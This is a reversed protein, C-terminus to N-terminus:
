PRYDVCGAEPLTCELWRQVLSSLDTLDIQCDQNMDVSDYGWVECDNEEIDVVLDDILFGSYGSAPNVQVQFEITTTHRRSEKASDDVATLTVSQSSQWNSTNFVIQSPAVQVQNPDLSDTITITIPHSFPDDTISISIADSAGGEQVVTTGDSESVLITYPPVESPVSAAFVQGRQNDYGATQIMNAANNWFLLPFQAEGTEVLGGMHGPIIAGSGLFSVSHNGDLNESGTSNTIAHSTTVSNISSVLEGTNADFSVYVENEVGFTVAGLTIALANDGFDTDNMSAPLGLQNANKCAFILNGDGLYLGTGNTTGGNEIVIIPGGTMQSADPNFRAALTIQGSTIDITDGDLGARATTYDALATGDDLGPVIEGAQLGSAMLGIVLGVIFLRGCESGQRIMKNRYALSYYLIM